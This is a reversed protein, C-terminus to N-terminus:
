WGCARRALPWDRARDPARGQVRLLGDAIRNRALILSWILVGSLPTMPVPSSGDREANVGSCRRWFSIMRDLPSISYFQLRCVRSRSVRLRGPPARSARSRGRRAVSLRASEKAAVARALPISSASCASMSIGVPKRPSGFRSRWIRLVQHRVRDPEGLLALHYDPGVSHFVHSVIHQHSRPPRCPSQFQMRSAPAGTEAKQEPPPDLLRRKPPVPSPRTMAALSALLHAALDSKFAHGSLSRVKM